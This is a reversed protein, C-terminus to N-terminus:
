DTLPSRSNPLLLFFPAPAPCPRDTLRLALRIRKILNRPCNQFTSFTSTHFNYSNTADNASSTPSRPDVTSKNRGCISFDVVRSFLLWRNKFILRLSPQFGQDRVSQAASFINKQPKSKRVSHVFQQVIIM